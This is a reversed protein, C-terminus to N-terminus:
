ISFVDLADTLETKTSSLYAHTSRTNKHNLFKGVLMLNGASQKMLGTAATRRLAHAGGVKEIGADKLLKVILRSGGAPTIFSGKQSLFLPTNPPLTPANIAKCYAALHRHAQTSIHCRFSSGNKTKGLVFEKQVSGGILVSGITLSCLESIRAGSGLALEVLAINRVHNRSARAAARLRKLENDTLARGDIGSNKPRGPKRKTSNATTSTKKNIM